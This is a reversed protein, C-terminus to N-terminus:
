GITRNKSRKSELTGLVNKIELGGFKLEQLFSTCLLQTSFDARFNQCFLAPNSDEWLGACLIQNTYNIALKMRSTLFIQVSGKSGKRAELEIKVEGQLGILLESIQSLPYFM